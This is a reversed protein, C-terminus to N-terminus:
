VEKFSLQLYDQDKNYVSQISELGLIMSDLLLTAEASPESHFMFEIFGTKNEDAEGKFKDYTFREISNVTNLVLVSVAACVIDYGKDDYGAHGKCQFGVYEDEQNKYITIKIM